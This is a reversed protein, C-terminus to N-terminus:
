VTSHLNQRVDRPFHILKSPEEDHRSPSNSVWKVIVGLILRPAKYIMMTVDLRNRLNEQQQHSFASSTVVAASPTIQM